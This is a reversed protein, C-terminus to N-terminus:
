KQVHVTNGNICRSFSIISVIVDTPCSIRGHINVIRCNIDKFNVMIVKKLNYYCLFFFFYFFIFFFFYIFLYFLLFLFFICKRRRSGTGGLGLIGSQYSTHIKFVCKSSM